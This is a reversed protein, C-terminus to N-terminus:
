RAHGGLLTVPDEPRGWRRIEFHLHPGTVAGTAGSLGIVQGHNVREGAKVRLESLHAYLTRTGSGHRLIITTGYGRMTGAFEVQGEDMSHVPTGSSVALDVGRHIEPWWGDLRLGFASTMPAHVPWRPLTCAGLLLPLSARLVKNILHKNAKQLIAM